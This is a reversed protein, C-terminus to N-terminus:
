FFMLYAELSLTQQGTGTLVGLSQALGYIVSSGFVRRDGATGSGPQHLSLFLLTQDDKKSTVLM